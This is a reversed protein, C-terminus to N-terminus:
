HLHLGVWCPMFGANVGDCCVFHADCLQRVDACRVQAGASSDTSHRREHESSEVGGLGVAQGVAAGVQVDIRLVM